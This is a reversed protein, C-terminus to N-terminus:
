PCQVEAALQLLEAPRYPKALYRIRKGAPRGDGPDAGGSVVVFSLDDRSASALKVLELGDISGPMNIDTVVLRIDRRQQLIRLAEDGSGAEICAYDADLLIDRAIMRVLEDDDVLLISGASPSVTGV